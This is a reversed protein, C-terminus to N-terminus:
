GYNESEVIKKERAHMVSLRKGRLEKGSREPIKETTVFGGRGTSLTDNLLHQQPRFIFRERGNKVKKKPGVNLVLRRMGRITM